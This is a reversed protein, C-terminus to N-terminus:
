FDLKKASVRGRREASNRMSPHLLECRHGVASVPDSRIGPFGSRNDFIYSLKSHGDYPIDSMARVQKAPGAGADSYVLAVNEGQERDRDQAPNSLSERIRIATM